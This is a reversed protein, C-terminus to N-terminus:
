PNGSERGPDGDRSARDEIGYAGSREVAEREIRIIDMIYYEKVTLSFCTIRKYSKGVSRRLGVGGCQKEALRDDKGCCRAPQGAHSWNLDWREWGLPMKECEKAVGAAAPDPLDFGAHLVSSEYGM